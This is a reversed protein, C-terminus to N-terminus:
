IWIYTSYYVNAHVIVTTNTVFCVFFLGFIYNRKTRWSMWRFLLIIYIEPESDPLPETNQLTFYGKWYCGVVAISVICIVLLKLVYVICMNVYIYVMYSCCLVFMFKILYHRYLTHISIHTPIGLVTSKFVFIQSIVYIM